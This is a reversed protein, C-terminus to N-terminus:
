MIRFGSFTTYARRSRSEFLNGRDLQLYVTDGAYLNVVASNGGMQYGNLDGFASAVHRPYNYGGVRM